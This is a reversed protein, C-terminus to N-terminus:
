NLRDSEAVNMRRRRILPADTTMSFRVRSLRIRGGEDREEMSDRLVEIFVKEDSSSVVDVINM